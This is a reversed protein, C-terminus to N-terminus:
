QAILCTGSAVVRHTKVANKFTLIVSLGIQEETFPPPPTFVYPMRLRTATRPPLLDIAAPLTDTFVFDLNTTSAPFYQGGTQDAIRQLTVGDAFDGFGITFVPMGVKQAERIGDEVIGGNDYGDTLVVAATKGPYAGLVSVAKIIADGINTSGEPELTSIVDKLITKNRTVAQLVVADTSFKVIAAKDTPGMKDIYLDAADKALEMLTAGTVGDTSEMSGSNDLALAVTHATFGSFNTLTVDDSSMDVTRIGSFTVQFNYKNYFDFRNGDQDLVYFYLDISNTVPDYEPSLRLVLSEITTDTPASLAGNTDPVIVVGGGGPESSYDSTESGCGVLTAAFLALAIAMLKVYKKM